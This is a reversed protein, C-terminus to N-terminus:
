IIFANELESIMDGAKWGRKSLGGLLSKIETIVNIQKMFSNQKKKIVGIEKSPYEMKENLIIKKIVQQVM